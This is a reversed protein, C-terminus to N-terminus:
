PSERHGVLYRPSGRPRLGISTQPVSACLIRSRTRHARQTVTNGTAVLWLPLATNPLDRHPHAAAVVVLLVSGGVM